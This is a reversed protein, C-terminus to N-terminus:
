GGILEALVVSAALGALLAGVLTDRTKKIKVTMFYVNITYFITEASSM